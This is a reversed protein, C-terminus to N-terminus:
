PKIAGLIIKETYLQNKIRLRVVYLGPAYGEMNLRITKDGTATVQPHFTRGSMDSVEVTCKGADKTEIFISNDASPNPYVHLINNGAYEKVGTVTATLKYVNLGIAYATLSDAWKVIRIKNAATGITKATWTAGGDVTQYGTGDTGVWGTFEDIFGIGFEKRGSTTLLLESWTLGGDTTKAVYRNTSNADYSLVTAYGTTRTAFCGKWITEFSRTSTYVPTFTQGGNTTYLITSKANQMNGDTSGYVFGTDKDFFYVDTIMGCYMSMDISRWTTGTDDSRILYTPGGVRGAAYLTVKYDLNGANIFPTKVVSIACLGKPVPGNFTTVPIWTVGGDTTKYLPTADTVNPFYDTGINGAFGILSDVFGICRFYTGTHNLQQVWSAGGNNTRSIQGSGNVAWGTDKNIFFIDDQKAANYPANALQVWNYQAFVASPFLLTLLAAIHLITKPISYPDHRFTKEMIVSTKM